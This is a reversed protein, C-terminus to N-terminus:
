YEAEASIAAAEAWNNGKIDRNFKVFEGSLTPM